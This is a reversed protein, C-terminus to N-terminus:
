EFMVDISLSSGVNIVLESHHNEPYASLFPGGHEACFGIIWVTDTFSGSKSLRHGHLAESVCPIKFLKGQYREDYTQSAWVLLSTVYYRGEHKRGRVLEVNWEIRGLRKDMVTFPFHYTMDEARFRDASLIETKKTAKKTASM